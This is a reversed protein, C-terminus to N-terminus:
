KAPHPIITISNGITDGAAASCDNLLKLKVGYTGTELYKHTGIGNSNTDVTGDGYDWIWDTIVAVQSTDRFIITSDVESTLSTDIWFAVEAVEISDSYVIEKNLSIVRVEGPSCENFVTLTVDYEGPETYAHYQVWDVPDTLKGTSFGDGFDWILTDEGAPARTFRVMFQRGSSECKTKPLSAFSSVAPWVIISDTYTVVGGSDTTITLSIEYEGAIYTNTAPDVSAKSGDGFVWAWETIIGGGAIDPNPGEFVVTLPACGYAPVMTFTSDVDPCTLVNITDRLVVQGAGCDGSITLTVEKPGPTTYTYTQVLGSDNSLQGQEFSWRWLSVGYPNFATMTVETGPCVISDSLTASDLGRGIIIARKKSENDSGDLTDFVSLNVTYTGPETYAHTVDGNSGSDAFLTDKTGDGFDWLWWDIPGSSADEFTVVFTPAVLCGSDPAMTFEATPHGATTIEITETILEDCGPSLMILCGSAAMLLILFKIRAM